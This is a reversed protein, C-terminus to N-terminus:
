LIMRKLVRLKHTHRGLESNYIGSQDLGDVRVRGSAHIIKGDELVIGVHTIAGETNDFFALDGPLCEELFSLTEGLKAQQSADRPISAGYQRYVMQTFGSCDVGFPTRGGWMYPANLYSFATHVLAERSGTGTTQEGEFKFIQDGIVTTKGDFLPLLSGQPILTSKAADEAQLLQVTESCIHRNSSQIRSFEENSLGQYQLNDIWGEYLDHHLRIRSWKAQQELIEFTEGFLVVNVMEARDSAEARLPSIGLFAIGRDNDGM